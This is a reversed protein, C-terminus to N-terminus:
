SNLLTLIIKENVAKRLFEKTEEYCQEKSINYKKILM